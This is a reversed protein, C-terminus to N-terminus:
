SLYVYGFWEDIKSKKDTSISFDAQM